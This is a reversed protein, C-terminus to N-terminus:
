DESELDTFFSSDDSEGSEQGKVDNQPPKPNSSEQLRQDAQTYTETPQPAYNQNSMPEPQPPNFQQSPLENMMQAPEPAPITDATTEGFAINNKNKQKKKQGGLVKTKVYKELERVTRTPLQEIDIVLEKQNALDPNGTCVIQWVGKLHATQLNKIMNTLNKKEQFTM